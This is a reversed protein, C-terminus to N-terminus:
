PSSLSTADSRVTIAIASEDRNSCSNAQSQASRVSTRSRSAPWSGSTLDHSAIAAFRAHSSPSIDSSCSDAAIEAALEAALDASDAAHDAALDASDAAHDAALEAALEAALDAAIEAALDAALDAAIEAAIEAALEAAIEAALEASRSHCFSVSVSRTTANSPTLSHVVDDV